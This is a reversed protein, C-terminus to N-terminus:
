EDLISSYSLEHDGGDSAGKTPSQGDVPRALIVVRGTSRPCGTAESGSVAPGWDAVGSKSLARM